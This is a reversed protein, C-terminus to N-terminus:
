DESASRKSVPVKFCWQQICPVGLTAEKKDRENGGGKEKEGKGERDERRVKM